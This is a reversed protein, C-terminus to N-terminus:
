CRVFLELLRSPEPAIASGPRHTGARLDDCRRQVLDAVVARLDAHEAVQETETAACRDIAVGFLRVSDRLYRRTTTRFLHGLDRGRYALADTCCVNWSRWPLRQGEKAGARRPSRGRRRGTVPSASSRCSRARSRALGRIASSPSGRGWSSSASLTSPSIGAWPFACWPSVSHWPPRCAGSVAMPSWSTPRTSYSTIPFSTPSRWTPPQESGRQM